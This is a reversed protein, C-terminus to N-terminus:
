WWTWFAAGALFDANRNLVAGSGKCKDRFTALVRARRGRFNVGTDSFACPALVLACAGAGAAWIKRAQATSICCSALLFLHMAGPLLHRVLLLLFSIAVFEGPAGVFCRSEVGALM